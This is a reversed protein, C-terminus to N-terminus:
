KFEFFNWVFLLLCFFLCQTHVKTTTLLNPISFSCNLLSTHLSSLPNYITLLSNSSTDFLISLNFKIYRYGYHVLSHESFFFLNLVCLFFSDFNNQSKDAGFLKSIIVQIQSLYAFFDGQFIHRPYNTEEEKNVLIFNTILLFM